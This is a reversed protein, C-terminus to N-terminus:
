RTFEELPLIVNDRVFEFLTTLSPSADWRKGGARGEQFTVYIGSYTEVQAQSDSPPAPFQAVVTGSVYEGKRQIVECESGPVDLTTRPEFLSGRILHSRRHKDVNSFSNLIALVQDNPREPLNLYPQLSNILAFAGAPMKRAHKLLRSRRPQNRDKGTSPDLDAVWVDYTLIPFEAGEDGSLFVDIHDLACRTNFLLDGVIVAIDDEPYDPLYARVLLSNTQHQTHVETSVRCKQRTDRLRVFEAHFEALHKEARRLKVRWTPRIPSRYDLGV